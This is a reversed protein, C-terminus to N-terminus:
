KVFFYVLRQLNSCYSNVFSLTSVKSDSDLFTQRPRVFNCRKEMHAEVKMLM